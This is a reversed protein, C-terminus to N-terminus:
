IMQEVREYVSPDFEPDTFKKYKLALFLAWKKMVEKVVGWRSTQGKIDLSSGTKKAVYGFLRTGTESDLFEVEMSAQGMGLTSGTVEEYADKALGGGPVALTGQAAANEVVNTPLLETVAARIEMVGPGPAYVITVGLKEFEQILQSTYYSCLMRSEGSTPKDKQESDQMLYLKVPEIMVAKYQSWDVGDAVYELNKNLLGTERFGDYNGLFGSEQAHTCGVVAFIMAVGVCAIFVKCTTKM